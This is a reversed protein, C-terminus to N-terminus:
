LYVEASADVLCCGSVWSSPWSFRPSSSVAYRSSLRAAQVWASAGAHWFAAASGYTTGSFCLIDIFLIYYKAIMYKSPPMMGIGRGAPM